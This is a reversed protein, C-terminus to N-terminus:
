PGRVNKCCFANNAFVREWVAYDTPICLRDQCQIPLGFSLFVPTSVVVPKAKSNAVVGDHLAEGGCRSTATPRRRRGLRASPITLRRRPTPSCRWYTMHPAPTYLPRILPPARREAPAPCRFRASSLLWSELAGDVRRTGLPLKTQTTMGASARGFVVRELRASHSGAPPTMAPNSSPLTQVCGDSTRNAQPRTPTARHIRSSSISRHARQHRHCLAHVEAPQNRPGALATAWSSGDPRCAGGKCLLYAPLEVTNEGRLAASM